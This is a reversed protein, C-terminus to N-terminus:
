RYLLSLFSLHFWFKGPLSKYDSESFKLLLTSKSYFTIKPVNRSLPKFTINNESTFFNNKVDQGRKGRHSTVPRTVNM